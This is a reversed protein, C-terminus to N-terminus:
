LLTDVLVTSISLIALILLSIGITCMIILFNRTRKEDRLDYKKKTFFPKFIVLLLTEVSEGLTKPDAIYQKVGEHQFHMLKIKNSGLNKVKQIRFVVIGALFSMILMGIFIGAGFVVSDEFHVVFNYGLKNYLWNEFMIFFRTM